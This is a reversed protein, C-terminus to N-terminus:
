FTLQLINLKQPLFEALNISFHKTHLFGDGETGCFVCTPDDPDVPVLAILNRLFIKGTDLTFGVSRFILAPEPPVM